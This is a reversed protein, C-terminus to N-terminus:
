FRSKYGGLASILCGIVLRGGGRSVNEDGGPTTPHSHPRLLWQSFCFAVLPTGDMDGLDRKQQSAISM